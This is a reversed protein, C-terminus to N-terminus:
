PTKGLRPADAPQWLPQSKFRIAPAIQHMGGAEVLLGRQAVHESAMAEAFDLVPSFAVDKDEFWAIWEDRSRSAFTGRLFAILPAQAPGADAEGLPILDERDLATLLNRVFKMERGGLVIHRGDSTAYVQYFGAGGLSRQSASRPADGGAIATGAIHACWPLLSDFM